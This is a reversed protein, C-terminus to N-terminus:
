KDLMKEIEKKLNILDEKNCYIKDGWGGCITYPYLKDFYNKEIKMKSVKRERTSPKETTLREVRKSM